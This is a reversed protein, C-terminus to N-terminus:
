SIVSVHNTNSTVVASFLEFVRRNGILSTNLHTLDKDIVPHEMFFYVFGFELLLMLVNLTVVSFLLNEIM